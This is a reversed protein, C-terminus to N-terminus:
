RSNTYITCSYTRSTQTQRHSFIFDYIKFSKPASGFQLKTPQQIYKYISRNKTSNFFFLHCQVSLIQKQFLITFAKLLATIIAYLSLSFHICVFVSVNWCIAICREDVFYEITLFIGNLGNFRSIIEPMTRVGDRIMIKRSFDAFPTTKDDIERLVLIVGVKSQICVCEHFIIMNSLSVSLVTYIETVFRACDPAHTHFRISILRSRM